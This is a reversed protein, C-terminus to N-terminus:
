AVEVVDAERETVTLVLLPADDVDGDVADEATDATDAAELATFEEVNLGGAVVKEKERRAVFGVATGNAEIV